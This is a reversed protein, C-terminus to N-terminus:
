VDECSHVFVFFPCSLSCFFPYKHIFKLVSPLKRVSFGVSLFSKFDSNLRLTILPLFFWVSEIQASEGEEEEALLREAELAAM